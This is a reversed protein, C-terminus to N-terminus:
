GCQCVNTESRASLEILLEMYSRNILPDPKNAVLLAAPAKQFISLDYGDKVQVEETIEDVFGIEKAEQATFWTENAMWQSITEADKGTKEVYTSVLNEKIKDLMEASKRLDDANGFTGVIPDHIMLFANKAMYVKDGAMAIISSISAALGEIYVDVSAKHQKLANFIAFGDFVMGGPSNIHLKIKPSNVLLLDRVFADATVGFWSIEDYIYIDTVDAKAEIRYWDTSRSSVFHNFLNRNFM